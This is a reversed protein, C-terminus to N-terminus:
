KKVEKNYRVIDKFRQFQFLVKYKWMLTLALLTISGGIRVFLSDVMLLLVACFIWLFILLVRMKGESSSKLLQQFNAEKKILLLFLVAVELITRAAYSYAAGVAGFYQILVILIPAYVISQVLYYQAVVKEENIAYLARLPVIGIANFLVGVAIIRLLNSSHISFDENIWLQLIDYAFIIVIGTIIGIIVWIGGFIFRFAERFEYWKEHKYWYSFAPFFAAMASGYLISVRTIVDYAAVYYSVQELGAMIGLVYRDIYYFVLSALSVITMWAGSSMLRKMVSCNFAPLKLNLHKCNYIFLILVSLIHIILIIVISFEIGQDFYFAAIPSLFIVSNLIARNSATIHFLLQSELCSRLFIILLFLPSFLGITVIMKEALNYLSPTKSVLSEILIDSGILFAVSLSLGILSMIFFGSWFLQNIKTEEEQKLRALEKNTSQAVGFNLYNFLLVQTIALTFLAFQEIGYLKITIPVMVIAFVVPFIQFGINLFSGKLIKAINM